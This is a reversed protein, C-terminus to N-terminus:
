GGYTYNRRVGRVNPDINYKQLMSGLIEPYENLNWKGRSMATCVYPFVSSDWHYKGRQKEGRYCFAGKIGLRRAADRWHPGELWKESSAERYLQELVNRKWLTAQMHFIDENDCNVAYLDNEIHNLSPDFGARILRVFSYNTRDLFEVYNQLAKLDVDDYLIFDEQMYIAYGGWLHKSCSLWQKFYPESEDYAWFLTQLSPHSMRPAVDVLMNHRISPVHQELQGLFMPWVDSCNSHSYTVLFIRDLTSMSDHNYNM